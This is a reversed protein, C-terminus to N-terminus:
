RSVEVTHNAAYVVRSGNFSQVRVTTRVATEDVTVEDHDVPRDPLSLDIRGRTGPELVRWTADHYELEPIETGLLVRPSGTVNGVRVHATQGRSYVRDTGFRGADLAPDEVLSVDTVTLNGRGLEPRDATVDLLGVGPGTVLLSGVIGIVVAWYAARASQM